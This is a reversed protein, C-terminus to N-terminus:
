SFLSDSWCCLSLSGVAEWCVRGCCKLLWFDLLFFSTFDETTTEQVLSSPWSPGRHHDSHNDINKRYIEKPSHLSFCESNPQPNHSSPAREKYCGKMREIIM